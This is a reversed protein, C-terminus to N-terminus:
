GEHWSAYKRVVFADGTTCAILAVRKMYNDEHDYKTRGVSLPQLSFHPCM